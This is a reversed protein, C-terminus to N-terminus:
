QRLLPVGVLFINDPGGSLQLDIFGTPNYFFNEIKYYYYPDGQM